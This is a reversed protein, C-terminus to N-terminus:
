ELIHWAHTLSDAGVHEPFEAIRRRYLYLMERTFWLTARDRPVDGSQAIADPGDRYAALALKIGRFRLVLHRFYQAGKRMNNEPELLDGPDIGVRRLLEPKLQLIGYRGDETVLGPLFGSSYRAIDVLLAAPVTTDREAQEALETIRRERLRPPGWSKVGDMHRSRFQFERCARDAFRAHRRAKYVGERDIPGDDCRYADLPKEPIVIRSGLMQLADHKDEEAHEVLSGMSWPEMVELAYDISNGIDQARAAAPAAVNGAVAVALILSARLRAPQVM